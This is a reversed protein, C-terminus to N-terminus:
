ISIAIPGRAPIGQARARPSSPSSPVARVTACANSTWSISAVFVLACASTLASLLRTSNRGVGRALGLRLSRAKEAAAAGDLSTMEVVMGIFGQRAMVRAFGPLNHGLRDADSPVPTLGPRGLLM